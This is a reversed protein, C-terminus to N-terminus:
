LRSLDTMASFGPMKAQRYLNSNMGVGDDDSSYDSCSDIVDNNYSIVDNYTNGEQFKNTM